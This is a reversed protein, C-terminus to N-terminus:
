GCEPMQFLILKAKITYEGLLVVVFRQEKPVILSDESKHMEGM